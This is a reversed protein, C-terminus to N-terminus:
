EPNEILDFHKMAEGAGIEKLMSDIGFYELAEILTIHGLIDSTEVGEMYVSITNNNEPNINVGDCSLSINM